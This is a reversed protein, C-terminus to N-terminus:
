VNEPLRRFVTLLVAEVVHGFVVVKLGLIIALDKDEIFVFSLEDLCLLHARFACHAAVVLGVDELVM